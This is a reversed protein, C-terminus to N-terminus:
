APEALATAIRLLDDLDAMSEFEPVEFSRPVGVRAAFSEARARAQTRDSAALQRATRAAVLVAAAREDLEGLVRMVAALDLPGPDDVDVPVRNWVAAAIPLQREILAAAIQDLDALALAEPRSVLVFKTDPRRLRAAMAASRTVFGPQLRALLGLFDVLSSWPGEGMVAEAGRRVLAGGGALVRGALGPKRPELLWGFVKPDLLALLRGPADFMEVGVAAPPTDLVVLDFADREFVDHLWEMAAYAHSRSLAGAGARYMPDALMRRKFEPDPAVRDIMAALSAPADLMAAWLEGTATIPVRSPHDGLGVGLAAALRRAPDVTLVCVRRGARAAAIGLSASVSTKGVGGPGVCVVLAADGLITNVDM